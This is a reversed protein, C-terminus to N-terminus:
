FHFKILKSKAPFFFFLPTIVNLHIKSSGIVPRKCIVFYLIKKECLLYVCFVESKLHHRHNALYNGRMKLHKLKPFFVNDLVVISQISISLATVFSGLRFKQKVSTFNNTRQFIHIHM